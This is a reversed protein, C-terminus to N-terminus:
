TRVARRRRQQRRPPPPPQLPPRAALTPLRQLRLPPPPLKNRNFNARPKTARRHRVAPVQSCTLPPSLPPPSPLPLAPRSGRGSCWRLRPAQNPMVRRVPSLPRQLRMPLPPPRPNLSHSRRRSRSCRLSHSCKAARLFPPHLLSSLPPPHLRLYPLLSSGRHHLPCHRRCMRRVLPLSRFQQPHLLSLLLTYTIPRCCLRRRRPNLILLSSPRHSRRHPSFLCCTQHRRRNPLTLATPTVRARARIRRVSKSPGVSSMSCSQQRLPAAAGVAIVPAPPPLATAGPSPSPWVSASWVRRPKLNAADCCLLFATLSHRACGRLICPFSSVRRCVALHTPRTCGAQNHPPVALRGNEASASHAPAHARVSSHTSRADAALGLGFEREACLCLFTV